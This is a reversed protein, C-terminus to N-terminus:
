LRLFSRLQQCRTRRFFHAGFMLAHHAHELENYRNIVPCKWESIVNKMIGSWQAVDDGARLKFPYEALSFRVGFTFSLVDEPVLVLQLSSRFSNVLIM